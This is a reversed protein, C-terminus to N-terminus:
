FDIKYNIYPIFQLINRAYLKFGAGEVEETLEAYLVNPRAYVNFVGISWTRVARKRHKIFKLGVDLRHIAPLRYNNWEALNYTYYSSYYPTGPDIMLNRDFDPYLQDPLTIAEGSMYVWSAAAEFKNRAYVISSKFNHRRDYRYPFPQGDNLM